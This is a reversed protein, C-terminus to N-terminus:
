NQFQSWNLFEYVSEDINNSQMFHEGVLVAKVNTNLLKRISSESSLGSESVIIVEQPIIKSLELTTDLNVEFTELDRNNIGILNNTKFDIKPLQSSSHLELLVELNCEAAARSLEKIQAASLAEAILLIADAGLAKAEFIQYEDIIFDKRLLPVNKIEAVDNIYRIDGQFFNKDSLISIADAGCKMYVEAIKM